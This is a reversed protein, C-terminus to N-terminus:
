GMHRVRRAEYEKQLSRVAWEQICNALFLWFRDRRSSPRVFYYDGRLYRPAIDVRAIEPREAAARVDLPVVACWATDTSGARALVKGTADRVQSNGLFEYEVPPM